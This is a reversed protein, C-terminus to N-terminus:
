TKTKTRCSFFTQAGRTNYWHISICMIKANVTSSKRSIQRIRAACKSSLVNPSQALQASATKPSQLSQFPVVLDAFICVLLSINSILWINLCLFVLLNCPATNYYHPQKPQILGVSLFLRLHDLSSICLRIFSSYTSTM